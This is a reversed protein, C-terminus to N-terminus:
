EKQKLYSILRRFNNTILVEIESLSMNNKKSLYEYVLNMNAPKAPKGNVVIFPGDSETLINALPIKLIIDQGAKSKIMATNISFYYGAKVIDAILELPGSYWHFIASKIKFSILYSLTEKEAKRSHLSLIKSKGELENLIRKFTDVQIEKTAIGEKSFDLGIEGIYSTKSLNRVFGSFEKYHAEAYLPHMGLALRVKNFSILHNYGMEFHSPLNTMGITIIGANECENAIQIPNEYLDIHCHTDIM